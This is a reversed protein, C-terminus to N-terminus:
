AQYFVTTMDEANDVSDIERKKQEIYNSVTLFLNLASEYESLKYECDRATNDCQISLYFFGDEAILSVKQPKLEDLNIVRGKFRNDIPSRLEDIGAFFRIKM